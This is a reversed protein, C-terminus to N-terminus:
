KTAHRMPVPVGDPKAAAQANVGASVQLPMAYSINPALVATLHGVISANMAIMVMFALHIFFKAATPQLGVVFYYLLTILTVQSCARCRKPLVTPRSSSFTRRWPAGRYKGYM